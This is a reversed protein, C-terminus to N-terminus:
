QKTIQYLNRVICIQGHHYVDHNIMTFIIKKISWHEGWNTLVLEELQDDELKSLSEVLRTQAKDLYENSKPWAPSELVGWTLTGKRFAYDDYMIKCHSLHTVLYEITSIPDHSSVWKDGKSNWQKITQLTRARATPKWQAEETSIKSLTERLSQYGEELESLLTQIFKCKTM